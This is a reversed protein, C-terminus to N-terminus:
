VRAMQDLPWTPAAKRVQHDIELRHNLIGELLRHAFGQAEEALGAEEVLRELTAKPDHGAADTEYLAQLIIARVKRRVGAM